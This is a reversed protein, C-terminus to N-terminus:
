GSAAPGSHEIAVKGITATVSYVISVVIMLMSGPERAIAKIPGLLGFRSASANLLYAGVAILCVGAVGGRTPVEGLVFYAIFIIFVPSLALFPVSLSLPSLKIAKVYLVLSVVELPVLLGLALWFTPDLPPVDIFIFAFALFPLAYGERVWVIVLDDTGKLARKSLADATSLSFATLLATPLWYM